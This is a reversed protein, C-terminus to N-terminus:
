RAAHLHFKIEWDVPSKQGSFSLSLTKGDLGHQVPIQRHGKGRASIQSPETGDPVYIWLTYDGGPVTRSSGSLINRSGDWKLALISYAGTIHRSTGILEPRHLDPHILFVRTDHPKIEAKLGNKFVGYLKQNWFDFVVYSSAPNLGLQDKFSLERTITKGKWNTMGVVDYVGSKANVKLDLVRPYNQIYYDPTTHKFTDWRIHSGRSFLDIPLIPLTPLTMELLKVREPPLEPMVSSVAYVVGTLALSTVLTRAEPTTSGFGQMPDEASRAAALVHSVRKKAAEEVSMHPGVDIGEGPMVYIVIHNLFANSSISSFLAYSGQWSPYMDRGNFYSDFYGIGNLPTGAPCGEIFRGPGIVSRILKLRNGYAVLPHISKNYLRSKDVNPVYEPIAHEGDFKYYEFGWNDLISFERKLFNLVQPNTSDLAPTSYDLVVKGNKYHLYWDPHQKVAGEYSNPVLWVGPLLGKAKIYSALWEPGHSFKQKNWNKIWYHVGNEGRDYGDDLVVYQFGYAKLNRAIWDTNEVIDKETVQSYYNDWSNWVVPAKRFHSDDFPIYYPVGLTSTYYNPIVRVITNVPVPSDIDLLNQDQPDRRMRTQDSFEIAIDSKRDFLSHLNLGSVQGLGFYMCESNRQPLFSRHQTQKGGYGDAVERTGEWDVPIGEPDMLRAVVRDPSAPAKATLIAEGSTSSIKLTDLALVVLWATRPEVTRISLQHQDKKEVSWNKLPRLDGQSKLNLQVDKLVTGLHDHGITLVSQGADATVTWGDSTISIPHAMQAWASTAGLVVWMMVKLFRAMM